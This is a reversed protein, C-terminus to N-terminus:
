ITTKKFFTCKSSLNCSKCAPKKSCVLAAYDLIAWNIYKSLKHNVINTSLSQLYPDYRIDAMKREGFYREVVRSMNVDILPRPKNFILLEISNAIYQGIFPIKELDIREEPFKGNRKQMEVALSKLRSARQTYLGIPRLYKEITKTNAVALSRWNPFDNIFKLYFSSVTEAKTRQLLTEAIVIQYNTLSRKRWPFKRGNKEYWELLYKQLEIINKSTPRAM